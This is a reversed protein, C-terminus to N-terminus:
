PRSVVFLLILDLVFLLVIAAELVIARRHEVEHTALEYLRSVTTLKDRVSLEWDSLHFRESAGAYVKAFYWDGFIKGINDVADTVRQLDLNVDSLTQQLERASRFMGGRAYFRKLDDYSKDLIRDLVRDYVRLELLQLNVIEFLTLLDGYKGTPEVVFAYDWDVVVLDNEYYRYWYRLNDEVEEDALRAPDAEGALLGALARREKVLANAVGGPLSTIAYVVYNEPEITAEYPEVIAPALGRRLEDYYARVITELDLDGTATRHRLNGYPLLDELREAQVPLRLAFGVAGVRYIRAELRFALPGLNTPRTTEPFRVVLPKPLEVWRPATKTIELPEFAPHANLLDGVRDLDIEGGTDYVFQYVVEGQLM